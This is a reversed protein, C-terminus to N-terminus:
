DLVPVRLECADDVDSRELAALLPERTKCGLAPVIVVDPHAGLAAPSLPM